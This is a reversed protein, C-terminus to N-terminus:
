LSLSEHHDEKKLELNLLRASRVRTDGLAWLHDSATRTLRLELSTTHWARGCRSYPLLAINSLGRVSGMNWAFPDDASSHDKRTANELDGQVMAGGMYIGYMRCSLTKNSLNAKLIQFMSIKKVFHGDFPLTVLIMQCNMRASMANNSLCSTLRSTSNLTLVM